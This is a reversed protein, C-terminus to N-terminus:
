RYYLIGSDPNIEYIPIRISVNQNPYPNEPTTLNDYPDLVPANNDITLNGTEKTLYGARDTHKFEWNYVGDPIIDGSSSVGKFSIEGEYNIDLDYSDDFLYASATIINFKYVTPMGGSMDAIGNLFCATGEEPFFIDWDKSLYIVDMKEGNIETYNTWESFSVGDNSVSYSLFSYASMESWAKM